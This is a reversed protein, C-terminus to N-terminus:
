HNQNKFHLLNAYNILFDTQRSLYYVFHLNFSYGALILKQKVLYPLLNAVM